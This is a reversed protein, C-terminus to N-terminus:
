KVYEKWTVLMLRKKTMKTGGWMKNSKPKEGVNIHYKKSSLKRKRVSRPLPLNERSESGPGWKWSDGILDGGSSATMVPFSKASM